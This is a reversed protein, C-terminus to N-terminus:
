NIFLVKALVSSRMFLGLSLMLQDDPLPRDNFLKYLIERESIKEDSSKSEMRYGYKKESTM